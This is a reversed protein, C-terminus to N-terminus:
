RFGFRVRASLQREDGAGFGAASFTPEIHVLVRFPVDTAPIVFVEREGPSLISRRRIEPRGVRPRGHRDLVLPGATIRVASPVAEATYFERSLEVTAEGPGPGSYRTYGADTGMWLDSYVGDVSERLSVPQAARYLVLPGQRALASGAIDLGADAVLYRPLGRRDDTVIRGTAPDLRARRSPLTCIERQGLHIVSRVPPNWFNVDLM